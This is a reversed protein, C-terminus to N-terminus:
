DGININKPIIINGEKLSKPIYLNIKSFKENRNKKWWVEAGNSARWLLKNNQGREVLDHNWEPTLKDKAVFSTRVEPDEEGRTWEDDIEAVLKKLYAKSFYYIERYLGNEKVAVYCRTIMADCICRYDRGLTTKAHGFGYFPQQWCMPFDQRGNARLKFATAQYDRGDGPHLFFYDILEDKDQSTTAKSYDVIIGSECLYSVLADTAEAAVQLRTQFSQEQLPSTM